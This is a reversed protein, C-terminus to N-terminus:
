QVDARGSLYGSYNPIIVEALLLVLNFLKTTDIAEMMDCGDQLLKFMIKTPKSLRFLQVIVRSCPQKWINPTWGKPTRTVFSHKPEIRLARSKQCSGYVM